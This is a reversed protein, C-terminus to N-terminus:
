CPRSTVGIATRCIGLVLKTVALGFVSHAVTRLLTRDRRSAPGLIVLGEAAWAITIWNSELQIPIALTIFVLSVGIM